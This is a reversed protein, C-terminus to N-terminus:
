TFCIETRLKNKSETLGSLFYIFYQKQDASAESIRAAMKGFVNQFNGQHM